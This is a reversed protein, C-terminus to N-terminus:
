RKLSLLLDMADFHSSVWTHVTDAVFPHNCLYNEKHDGIYVGIVPKWPQGHYWALEFITGIFPIEPTYHNANFIACNSEEKVYAKDLAPFLRSQKEKNVNVSFIRPDSQNSTDLVKQSFANACPNIVDVDKRIEKPLQAVYKEIHERWIYTIPNATIQGILYPKLIKL